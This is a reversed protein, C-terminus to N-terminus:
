MIFWSFMLLNINTVPTYFIDLSTYFYYALIEADGDINWIFNRIFAKPPQIDHPEGNRDLIFNTADKVYYKWFDKEEIDEKRKWKRQTKELLRQKQM